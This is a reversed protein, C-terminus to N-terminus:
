KSKGPPWNKVCNWSRLLLNWTETAAMTNRCYNPWSSSCSCCRDTTKSCSARWNSIKIMSDRMFRRLLHVVRARSSTGTCEWWPVTPFSVTLWKQWNVWIWGPRNSVAKCNTMLTNRPMSDPRPWNKLSSQPSNLYHNAAPSCDSSMNSM